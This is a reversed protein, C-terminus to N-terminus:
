KEGREQERNARREEGTNNRPSVASKRPPYL